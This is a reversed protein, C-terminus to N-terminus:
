QIPIQTRFANKNIRMVEYWLYNVKLAELALKEFSGSPKDPSVFQRNCYNVPFRNESDFNKVIVVIM